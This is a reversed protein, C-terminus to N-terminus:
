RLNQVWVRMNLWNAIEVFIRSLEETWTLLTYFKTIPIALYSQSIVVCSSPLKCIITPICAPRVYTDVKQQDIKYSKTCSSQETLAALQYFTASRMWSCVICPIQKSKLSYIPWYLANRPVTVWLILSCQM